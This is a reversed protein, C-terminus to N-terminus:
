DSRPKLQRLWQRFRSLSKVKKGTEGLYSAIFDSIDSLRKLYLREGGPVHTIYGHWLAKGAEDSGEVWLKVIFSHVQSEPIDM